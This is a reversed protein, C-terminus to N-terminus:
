FLRTCGVLVSEFCLLVQVNRAIGVISVKLFTALFFDLVSVAIKRAAVWTDGESALSAM